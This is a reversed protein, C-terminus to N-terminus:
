FRIKQRRWPILSNSAVSLMGNLGLGFVAIVVLYAYLVETRLTQWSLWIAAGLGSRASIMEVAVVVIFAANISLQLGALLMPLACPVVVRRFLYWGRADYSAAVDWLAPDIQEVGAMGNVVLPFFAALAALALLSADGLGFIVLMLPFLALKPLPQTAAIFPQCLRRLWPVYGMQLGLVAGAAGGCVVGVCLRRLSDALNTWLEGSAAEAALAAATSSPAPFFLASALGARVVGEWILLAAGWVAAVRVVGSMGLRGGWRIRGVVSSAADARDVLNRM